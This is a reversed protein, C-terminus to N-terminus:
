ANEWALEFYDPTYYEDSVWGANRAGFTEVMANSLPNWDAFHWVEGRIKVTTGDVFCDGSRDDTYPSCLKGAYWNSADVRTVGANTESPAPPIDLISMVDSFQRRFEEEFGDEHRHSQWWGEADTMSHLFGDIKPQAEEAEAESSFRVTMYYIATSM